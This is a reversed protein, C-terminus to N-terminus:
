IMVNTKLFLWNKRWFNDFIASFQWWLMSCQDCQKGAFYSETAVASSSLFWKEMSTMLWRESKILQWSKLTEYRPRFSIIIEGNISKELGEQWKSQNNKRHLESTPLLYMLLKLTSWWLTYIILFFETYISQIYIHLRLFQQM